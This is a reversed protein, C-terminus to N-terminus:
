PVLPTRYLTVSEERTAATAGTFAGDGEIALSLSCVTSEMDGVGPINVTGVTTFSIAGGDPDAPLLASIQAPSLGMQFMRAAAELRATGRSVQLNIEEQKNLVVTMTSAAGVGIMLIASALLVEILSYGRSSHSLPKRM